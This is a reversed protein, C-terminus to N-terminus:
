VEWGEAVTYRGTEIRTLIGDRAMGGMTDALDKEARLRKRVQAPSLGEPHQRLLKVIRQRMESLPPTRTRTPLPTMPPSPPSPPSPSLLGPPGVVSKLLTVALDVEHELRGLLRELHGLRQELARFRHEDQSTGQFTPRETGHVDSLRGLHEVELPVDFGAQRLAEETVISTKGPGGGSTYHLVGEDIRRYLVSRSTGLLRAAEAITFTRM